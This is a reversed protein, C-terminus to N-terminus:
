SAVEEGVLRAEIAADDVARAIDDLLRSVPGRIGPNSRYSSRLLLLADWLDGADLGYSAVVADLAELRALDEDSREEVQRALHHEPHAFASQAM